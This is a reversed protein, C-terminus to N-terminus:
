LDGQPLFPHKALRPRPANPRVGFHFFLCRSSSPCQMRDHSIFTFYIFQFFFGLQTATHFRLPPIIQPKKKKKAYMYYTATGGGGDGGCLYRM